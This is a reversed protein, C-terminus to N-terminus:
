KNRTYMRYLASTVVPPHVRSGKPCVTNLIISIIFLTAVILMGLTALSGMSVVLLVAVVLVILVLVLVLVLVLPKILIIGPVGELSSLSINERGSL